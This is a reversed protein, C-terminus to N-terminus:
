KYIVITRIIEDIIPNYYDYTSEPIQINMHFLHTGYGIAYDFHIYMPGDQENQVTTKNYKSPYRGKYPKDKKSKYFYHHYSNGSESMIGEWGVILEQENKYGQQLGFDAAFFIRGFVIPQEESDIPTDTIVYVGNDNFITWGKPLDIKYTSDLCVHPVLEIEDISPYKSRNIEEVRNKLSTAEMIRGARELAVIKNNLYHLNNPSFDIAVNYDAIAENYKELQFYCNGRKYRLDADDVGFQITRNYDDIAQYYQGRQKYINGRNYYVEPNDTWLEEAMDLDKLAEDEKQLEIYAVARNLYPAGFKKDFEIAKTYNKIAKEFDPKGSYVLGRLNWADSYKPKKKIVLDLDAIAKEPEGLNIYVLARKFLANTNNGDKEIVKNYSELATSFDRKQMAQQAAEELETQAMLNLNFANFIFFLVIAVNISKLKTM